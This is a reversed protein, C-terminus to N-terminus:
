DAEANLDAFDQAEIKLLRNLQSFNTTYHEVLDVSEADEEDDDPDKRPSQPQSMVLDDLGKPEFFIDNKLGFLGRLM